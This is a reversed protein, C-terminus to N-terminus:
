AAPKQGNKRYAMRSAYDPSLWRPIKLHYRTILRRVVMSALTSKKQNSVPLLQWPIYFKRSFPTDLAAVERFQHNGGIHDGHTHTNLVTVPLNTLRDVLAKIDGIGNGTDILAAKDEGLVLYSIVEEFQGDEYIAYVTSTLRYVEFWADPQDMKEYSSWAQRPLKEYWKKPVIIDSQTNDSYAM